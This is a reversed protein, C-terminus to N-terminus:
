HVRDDHAPAVPLVTDSKEAPRRRRGALRTPPLWTQTFLQAFEGDSRRRTAQIARRARFTSGLNLVNWLVANLKPGRPARFVGDALTIAISAAGYGCLRLLGYNKTVSRLRNKTYHFVIRPDSGAIKPDVHHTAVLSPFVKVCYGALHVRWGFDSDEYGYFYTADFGGLERLLRARAMMASCNLWMCERPMRAETVPAGEAADWALGIPSIEGGYANLRGPAHAYVVAGGLCALTADAHMAQIATAIWNANLVVDSDVFLVFEGRAQEIGTNRAAAPGEPEKRVYRVSAHDGAGFSEVWERTGDTSSNDVVIIEVASAPVTQALLADMTRRLDPLRNFTPIVVSVLPMNANSNGTTATM